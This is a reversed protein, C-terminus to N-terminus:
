NTPTMPVVMSSSFNLTSTNAFPVSLVYDYTWSVREVQMSSSVTETTVSVALDNVPVDALLAQASASISSAPTTPTMILVRSARQIANRVAAGCYMAYGLNFIGILMLILVPSVIAFELATAGATDRILRRAFATM